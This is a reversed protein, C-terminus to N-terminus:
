FVYTHTQTHTYLYPYINICCIHQFIVVNLISLMFIKSVGMEKVASLLEEYLAKDSPQEMRDMEAKLPFMHHNGANGDLRGHCLFLAAHM